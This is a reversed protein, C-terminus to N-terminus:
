VARVDGEAEIAAVRIVVRIIVAIVARGIIAAVVIAPVAGVIAIAAIVAVVVPVISPQLTAGAAVRLAFGARGRHFLSPPFQDATVCRSFKQPAGSAPIASRYIM